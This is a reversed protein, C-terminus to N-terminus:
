FLEEGLKREGKIPKNFMGLLSHLKRTDNDATRDVSPQAGVSPKPDQNQCAIQKPTVEKVM